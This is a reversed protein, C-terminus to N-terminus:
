AESASSATGAKSGARDLDFLWGKAGVHYLTESQRQFGTPYNLISKQDSRVSIFSCLPSVLAM